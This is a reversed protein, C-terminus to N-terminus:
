KLLFDVPLQNENSVDNKIKASDVKMTEMARNYLAVAQPKMEPAQALMFNAAAILNQALMLNELNNLKAKITDIGGVILDSKDM